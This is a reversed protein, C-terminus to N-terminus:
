SVGAPTPIPRDRLLHDDTLGAVTLPELDPRRATSSGQTCLCRAVYEGQSAANEPGCPDSSM